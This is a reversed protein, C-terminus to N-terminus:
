GANPEARWPFPRYAHIQLTAGLEEFPAQVEGCRVRDLHQGLALPLMRCRALAEGVPIALLTAVRSAAGKMHEAPCAVLVVDFSAFIGPGVGMVQAADQEAASAEGLAEDMGPVQLFADYEAYYDLARAYDELTSLPRQRKQVDLVDAFTAPELFPSLGLGRAAVAVEDDEDWAEEESPPLWFRAALAGGDTAHVWGYREWVQGDDNCAAIADLTQRLDLLEIM